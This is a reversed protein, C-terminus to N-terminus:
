ARVPSIKGTNVERLAPDGQRILFRNWWGVGFGIFLAGFLAMVAQVAAIRWQANIIPEMVVPQDADPLVRVTLSEVGELRPALTHPIAMRERLLQTGDPMTIQLSIWDYVVDMRNSTEFALVEATAPVGEEWTAKLDRAVQYQNFALFILLLPFGWLLRAIVRSAKSSM